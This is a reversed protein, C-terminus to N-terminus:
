RVRVQQRPKNPSKGSDSHYNSRTFPIFKYDYKGKNSDPVDINMYEPPCGPRSTDVIEHAVHQAALSALYQISFTLSSFSLTETDRRARDFFLISKFIETNKCSIKSYINVTSISYQSKVTFNTIKCSCISYINVTFITYLQKVTFDTKIGLCSSNVYM